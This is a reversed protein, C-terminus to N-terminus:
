HKWRPPFSRKKKAGSVSSIAREAAPPTGASSHQQQQEVLANTMCLFANFNDNRVNNTNRRKLYPDTSATHKNKSLNHDWFSERNLRFRISM